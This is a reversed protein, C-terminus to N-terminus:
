NTLKKDNTYTGLKQQFQKFVLLFLMIFKFLLSGCSRKKSVGGNYDFMKIRLSIQLLVCNGRIPVRVTSRKKDVTSQNLIWFVRGLWPCFHGELNLIRLVTNVGPELFTGLLGLLPILRRAIKSGSQPAGFSRWFSPTNFSPAQLVKIYFELHKISSFSCINSQLLWLTAAPSM